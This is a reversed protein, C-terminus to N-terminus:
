KQDARTVYTLKNQTSDPKKSTEVCVGLLYSGEYVHAHPLIKQLYHVCLVCFHLEPISSSPVDDTASCYDAANVNYFLNLQPFLSLYLLLHKATRCSQETAANMFSSMVRLAHSIEPSSYVSLHVLLARISCLFINDALLKEDKVLVTGPATPNDRNLVTYVHSAHMTKCYPYKKVFSSAVHQHQKCYMRHHMETPHKIVSAAATGIV